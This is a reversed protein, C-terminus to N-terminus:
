AVNKRTKRAKRKRRRELPRYDYGPPNKVREDYAIFDELAKHNPVYSLPVIEGEEDLIALVDSQKSPEELSKKLMHGGFAVIVLASLGALVAITPDSM